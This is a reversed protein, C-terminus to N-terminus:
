MQLCMKSNCLANDNSPSDFPALVRGLLEGVVGEGGDPLSAGTGHWRRVPCFRTADTGDRGVYRETSPDVSVSRESLVDASASWESVSLESCWVRRVMQSLRAEVLSADERLLDTTATLAAAGMVPALRSTVSCWMWVCGQSSARESSRGHGHPRQLATRHESHPSTTKRTASGSSQHM